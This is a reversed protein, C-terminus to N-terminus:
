LLNPDYVYLYGEIQVMKLHEPSGKPPNSCGLCYKYPAFGPLSAMKELVKTSNAFTAPGTIRFTHRFLARNGGAYRPQGVFRLEMGPAGIDLLRELTFKQDDGMLMSVKRINKVRAQLNKANDLREHVELLGREKAALLDANELYQYLGIIVTFVILALGLTFRMM